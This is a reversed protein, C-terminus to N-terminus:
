LSLVQIMTDAFILGCLLPNSLEKFVERYLCMNQLPCLLTPYHVPKCSSYFYQYMYILLTVFCVTNFNQRVIGMISQNRLLSFETFATHASHVPTAILCQVSCVHPTSLHMCVDTMVPFRM